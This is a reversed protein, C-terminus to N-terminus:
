LWGARKLQRRLTERGRFLWAKVTGVSANLAEAIEAVSLGEAYRLLLAARQNPPLQSLAQQVWRRRERAWWESEPDPLTPVPEATDEDAEEELPVFTVASRRELANLCLRTTITMLWTAFAGRQPDFLALRTFARLFADQAVDEAWDPDGLLHLALGYVRDRYRRVLEDFAANDGNLCRRVLEADDM